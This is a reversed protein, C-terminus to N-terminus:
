IGYQKIKRLLTKYDIKLISAAKTKNGLTLDLVDKINEMEAEKLSRVTPEKFINNRNEQKDGIIIFELHESRIVGNNSRLVARRIVNKLERINGPWLYRKLLNNADDTIERVQKNLEIGADILFKQAFFPIDEVRERLPPLNIIFEGLRFFLDERFKREKVSHKIDKNTATIIRVDIDVPQTSGLPYVKREEVARLLKSQVYHSMNELDDIFITGSNSVEFFGKKKREAGTFAGKEYGFLESEVLTEPMASLDVSVFPGRGRKSLNHIIRVITSKGTGTEGQIIVSLDSWAVQHIQEIIGKIANGNGLLWELSVGVATNLRKVSRELELKEIARKLTFILKDFKPPKVIFDYAGLKISEVATPIDGYATVIIVPIDPDIKKLEQMVEIGDMDPMKLDLLVSDPRERRFIEFTEKSSSAELTLFNNKQLIEILVHRLARDDDVVLIKNDPM